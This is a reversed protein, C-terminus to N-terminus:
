GGLATRGRECHCPYPEAADAGYWRRAEDDASVASAFYAQAKRTRGTLKGDAAREWKTPHYHEM